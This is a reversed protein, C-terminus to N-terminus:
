VSLQCGQVTLVSPPLDNPSQLSCTEQLGLDEPHHACIDQQAFVRPSVEPSRYFRSQIYSYTTKTEFCASGFDIVKIDGSNLSQLLVNEPKLDCHIISNERLVALCELIQVSYPHGHASRDTVAKCQWHARM